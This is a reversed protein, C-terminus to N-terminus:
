EGVVVPYYQNYQRILEAWGTANAIHEAASIQTYPEQWNYLHFDMVVNYFEPELLGESVWLDYNLPYLENFVAICTSCHQRIVQYADRYYQAIDGHHNTSLDKSPENLLEIGLLHDFHGYRLILSEIADLSLQINAPTDWGVSWGCGSHDQGNQSGPAGHLDLLVSLNYKQSTTMLWDVYSLSVSVNQPVFLHYPDSVINWYGLPVRVANFGAQAIQHLDSETIWSSLHQDMRSEALPLSYNVLKCLGGWPNATTNEYFHPLMWAEPIFWGGLNVGHLPNLEVLQFYSTTDNQSVYESSGSSLQRCAESSTVIDEVKLWTDENCLKLQITTYKAPWRSKGKMHKFKSTDLYQQTVAAFISGKSQELSLELANLKKSQHKKDVVTLWQQSMTRLRFCRNDKNDDDIRGFTWSEDRVVEFTASHLKNVDDTLLLEGDESRVFVNYDFSKLQVKAGDLINLVKYTPALQWAYIYSLYITCVTLFSALLCLVYNKQRFPLRDISNVSPLDDGGSPTFNSKGRMEIDLLGTRETDSSFKNVSM